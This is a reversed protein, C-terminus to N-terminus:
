AADGRTSLVADLAIAGQGRPRVLFPNIDLTELRDGHAAAFRSLTSLAEALAEVDMPPRGRAGDLLAAGRIERIMARADEMGFPARRLSVDQLVEVFIGGLGFMVVPGFVPDVQVGLITEVGNRTDIMPAVLCGDIRAEPAHSRAAVLVRNAADRVADASRLDLAVGGIDSKHLIDPSLIKVVVPFGMEQAVRAAEDADTVARAEAVPLGAAALVGLATREDSTGRPLPMRAMPAPAPAAPPLARLRAMAAATRVASDPETFVLCGCAEYARRVAPTVAGSIAIFTHPHRARVEEWVKQIRFGSEDTRGAGANFCVISGFDNDALVVEVMEAFHGLDGIMQGTVDVPNRTGAFPVIERIRAQAGDGLPAPDLGGSVAEDAMMVGVGGSVTILGITTNRPPRGVAYAYGLDFWEGVSTARYAGHQALVADYVADAGALSATHSAAAEAGIATRGVKLVVVPKGAARALDLAALLKPGNRAGEMYVMIVRTGADAALCAIGDAVDVDVENGTTIWASFSLGRQQALNAVYGGFAGSQSVLGIAGGPAFRPQFFPCFSAVLGANINAIGLTNPGLIRMGTTRSLDAMAAQAAGGEPGIEAFGSSFVVAARTGAEACQELADLVGAAPIAIVALDVPRGIAALDPVARYGSIEQAKPNVPYVDGQFDYARLMAVPIAGIKGPSASAGIIAVSRPSLLASLSRADQLSAAPSPEAPPNARAASPSASM